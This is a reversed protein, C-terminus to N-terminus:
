LKRAKISKLAFAMRAFANRAVEQYDDWSYCGNEDSLFDFEQYLYEMGALVAEAPLEKAIKSIAAKVEEPEPGIYKGKEDIQYGPGYTLIDDRTMRIASPDGYWSM